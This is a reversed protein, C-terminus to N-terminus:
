KRKSNEEKSWIAEQTNHLELIGAVAAKWTPYQEAIRWDNLSKESVGLDFAVGKRSADAGRAVVAKYVSPTDIKPKRGRGDTLSQKGKGIFLWDALGRIDRKNASSKSAQAAIILAAAYLAEPLKDKFQETARSVKRDRRKQLIAGWKVFVDTEFIIQARYVETAYEVLKSKELAKIFTSRRLYDGYAAALMAWESPSGDDADKQKKKRSKSIPAPSKKAM